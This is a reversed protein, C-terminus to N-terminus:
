LVAARAGMRQWLPMGSLGTLLLAVFHVNWGAIFRVLYVSPAKLRCYCADLGAMADLGWEHRWSALIRVLADLNFKTLSDQWQVVQM